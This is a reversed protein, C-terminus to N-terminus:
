KTHDHHGCCGNTHAEFPNKATCTDGTAADTQGQATNIAGFLGGVLMSFLPNQKLFDAYAARFDEHSVGKYLNVGTKAQSPAVPETDAPAPNLGNAAGSVSPAMDSVTSIPMDSLEVRPWRFRPLVFYPEGPQPACYPEAPEPTFIGKLEPDDALETSGETTVARALLRLQLFVETSLEGDKPNIGQTSIKVAADSASNVTLYCWDHFRQDMAIRLGGTEIELDLGFCKNVTSILKYSGFVQQSWLLLRRENKNWRLQEILGEDFVHQESDSPSM